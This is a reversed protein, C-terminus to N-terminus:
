ERLSFVCRSALSTISRCAGHPRLRGAAARQPRRAGGHRRLQRGGGRGDHQVGLVVRVRGADQRGHRRGQRALRLQGAAPGGGGALGAPRGARWEHAAPRGRRRAPGHPAGRVGGAHPRLLAHGRPAGDPGAGPAGGRPGPQGRVRAASACVGQARLVAARAAERVSRVAGGPASGPGRRRPYRADDGAPHIQRRRVRRRTTPATLPPRCAPAGHNRSEETTPRLCAHTTLLRLSSLSTAAMCAPSTSAQRRASRRRAVRARASNRPRKPNPTQYISISCRTDSRRSSM